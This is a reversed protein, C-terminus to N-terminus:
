HMSDIAVKLGWISFSASAVSIAKGVFDLVNTGKWFNNASGQDVKIAAEYYISLLCKWGKQRFSWNGWTEQLHSLVLQVCENLSNVASLPKIHWWEWILRSFCGRLICINACPGLEYIVGPAPTAARKQTPSVNGVSITKGVGETCGM